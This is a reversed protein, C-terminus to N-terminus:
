KKLQEALWQPRNTTIGDIGSCKLNRALVPDDVTWVYAELGAEKVKAIFCADVNELAKVNLGDAGVKKARAILEEVSPELVQTEKNKKFSSLPYVRHDPFAQKAAATTEWNFSIIVIQDPGLGSRALSKELEPIIEPGVKIEIVLIRGDPVTALVEDLLPIPEGAWQAGKHIGADLERLEAYTQDKVKRDRGYLKKTDFDHIVVIQNDSSLHVDIEVAQVGREWALNVSALTNEPADYSAGRHAIILCEQACLFSSPLAISLLALVTKFSNM